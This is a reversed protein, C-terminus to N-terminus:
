VAGFYEEAMTRQARSSELVLQNALTQLYAQRQSM